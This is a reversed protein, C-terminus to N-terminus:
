EEERRGKKWSGPRKQHHGKTQPEALTSEVMPASPWTGDPNPREVVMVTGGVIILGLASLSWAYGIADDWRNQAQGCEASLLNAFECMDLTAKAELAEENTTINSLALLLLVAAVSLWVAQPRGWSWRPRLRWPETADKTSALTRSPGGFAVFWVLWMGVLVVLFGWEYVTEHWRWMDQLCAQQNPLETCGNLAIPYFVVLRALNLVYVIGCMVAISKLKQRQPVGDTMIVLTSLFLMEHVGACEDSVYLGISDFHGPFNPHMLDLRTLWGNHTSLTASGEGFLLNTAANWLYAETVQIPALTDSPMTIFWYIAEVVILALPIRAYRLGLAGVEQWSLDGDPRAQATTAM